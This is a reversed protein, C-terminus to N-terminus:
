GIADVDIGINTLSIDEGPQTCDDNRVDLEFTHATPVGPEFLSITPRSADEFIDTMTGTEAPALSNFVDASGGPKANVLTGDVYARISMANQRLIGNCTAPMAYSLGGYFVNVQDAAQTWTTGSLPVSHFAGDPPVTFSSLRMRDVVTTGDIGPSGTEGKVGRIGRIGQANWNLTREGSKCHGTARIRRLVGTKTSYCGHIVATSTQTAAVAGAGAILVGSFAAIIAIAPRSLSISFRSM